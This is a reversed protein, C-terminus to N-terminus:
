SKAALKVNANSRFWIKTLWEYFLDESACFNEQCRM